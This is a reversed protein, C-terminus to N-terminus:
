WIGSEEIKLTGCCYQCRPLKRKESIQRVHIGLSLRTKKKQGERNYAALQETEKHKCLGRWTQREIHNILRNTSEKNSVTDGVIDQNVDTLADVEGM